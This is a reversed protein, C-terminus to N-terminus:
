WAFKEIERSVGKYCSNMKLLLDTSIHRNVRLILMFWSLNYHTKYNM